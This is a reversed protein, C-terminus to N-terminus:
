GRGSRHLRESEIPGVLAPYTEITADIKSRDVFHIGLRLDDVPESIDRPREHRGVRASDRRHDDRRQEVKTVELDNCQLRPQRASRSDLMVSSLLRVGTQDEGTRVLASDIETSFQGPIEM